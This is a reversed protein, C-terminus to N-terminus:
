AQKEHNEETIDSVFNKRQYLNLKHNRLKPELYTAVLIEFPGIGGRNKDKVFSLEGFCKYGILICSAVPQFFV